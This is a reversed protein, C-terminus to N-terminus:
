RKIPRKHAPASKRNRVTAATKSLIFSLFRAHYDGGQMAALLPSDCEIKIGECRRHGSGIRCSAADGAVAAVTWSTAGPASRSSLTTLWSDVFWGCGLFPSGIM